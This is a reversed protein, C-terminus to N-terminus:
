QDRVNTHGTTFALTIIKGNRSRVVAWDLDIM